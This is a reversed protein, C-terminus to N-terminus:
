TMEFSGGGEDFFEMCDKRPLIFKTLINTGLKESITLGNCFRIFFSTYYWQPGKSLWAKSDIFFEM